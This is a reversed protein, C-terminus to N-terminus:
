RMCGGPWGSHPPPPSPARAPSEKSNRGLEWQIQVRNFTLRCPAGRSQGRVPAQEGWTAVVDDGVVCAEEARDPGARTTYAGASNEMTCRNRIASQIHARRASIRKIAWFPPTQGPCDEMPASAESTATPPSNM